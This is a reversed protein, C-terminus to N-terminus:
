ILSLLKEKLDSIYVLAGRFDIGRATDATIVVPSGPTSNVIDNTLM